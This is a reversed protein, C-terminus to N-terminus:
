RERAAARELKGVERQLMAAVLPKVERRADPALWSGWRRSVPTAVDGNVVDATYYARGGELLHRTLNRVSLGDM